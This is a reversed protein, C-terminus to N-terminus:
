TRLKKEASEPNEEVDLTKPVPNFEPPKNRPCVECNDAYATFVRVVTDCLISYDEAREYPNLCMQNTLSCRSLLGSKTPVLQLFPYINKLQDSLEISM